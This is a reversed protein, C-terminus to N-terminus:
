IGDPVPWSHCTVCEPNAQGSRHCGICSAMATVATQMSMQELAPVDGHCTRCDLGREIHPRHTWKVGPLVRYVREWSAPQGSEYLATLSRVLENDVAISAHCDMCAALGPLTMHAGDATRPDTIGAPDAGVHCLACPQGLTGAHTAHSFPVPQAPAPTAAYNPPISYASASVASEDPMAPDVASGSIDGAPQCGALLAICLATVPLRLWARVKAKCTMKVLFSRAVELARPQLGAGYSITAPGRGRGTSM